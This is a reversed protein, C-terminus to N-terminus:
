RLVSFLLSTLANAICGEKRGAGRFPSKCPPQDQKQQCTSCEGELWGEGSCVPPLPHALFPFFRVSVPHGGLGTSARVCITLVTLLASWPSLEWEM